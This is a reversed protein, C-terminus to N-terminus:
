LFVITFIWVRIIALFIVWTADEWCIDSNRINRYLWLFLTPFILHFYKNSKASIKKRHDKPLSWITRGFVSIWVNGVFWVLKRFCFNTKWIITKREFYFSLGRYNSLNALKDMWFEAACSRGQIFTIIMRLFPKVFTGNECLSTNKEPHLQHYKSWAFGLPRDRKTWTACQWIRKFRWFYREVKGVVNAHFATLIHYESCLGTLSFNSFLLRSEALKRYVREPDLRGACSCSLVCDTPRASIFDRGLKRLTATWFRGM